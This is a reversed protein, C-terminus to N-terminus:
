LPIPIYQSPFIIELTEGVANELSLTEGNDGSELIYVPEFKKLQVLMRCFPSSMPVPLNLFSEEADLDFFSVVTTGALYRISQLFWCAQFSSNNRLDIRSSTFESDFCVPSVHLPAGQAMGIAQSVMMALSPLNEIMSATDFAHVQPSLGFQM